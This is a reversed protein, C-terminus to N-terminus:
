RGGDAGGWGIEFIGIVDKDFDVVEVRLAQPLHRINQNQRWRGVAQRHRKMVGHGLEAHGVRLDIGPPDHSDDFVVFGVADGREGRSVRATALNGLM